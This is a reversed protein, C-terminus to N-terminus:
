PNQSKKAMIGNLLIQKYNLGNDTECNVGENVNAQFDEDNGTHSVSNM